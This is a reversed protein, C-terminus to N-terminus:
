ELRIQVINFLLCAHDWILEDRFGLLLVERLVLFDDFPQPIVIVQARPVGPRHGLYDNMPWFDFDPLCRSGM